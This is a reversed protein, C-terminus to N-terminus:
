AGEGSRYYRLMEEERGRVVRRGRLPGAGETLVTGQYRRGSEGHAAYVVVWDRTRGLQHARATNSYLATVEWPGFRDHLIPLWAADEPNFRRPAIRPLRDAEALERYRRDVALLLVIEPDGASVAGARRGALRVTLADRVGGVRKPGFGEIADLTGDHAAIELEEFSDIGHEEVLREALQQGVGPLTAFLTVADHEGELRELLPYRDHELIEIISDALSRGITPIRILAERGGHRYIDALPTGLRGLTRAAERYARVRFPNAQQEELLDAVRVFRAAIFDNMTDDHYM